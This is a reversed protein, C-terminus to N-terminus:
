ATAIKAFILPEILLRLCASYAARRQSVYFLVGRLHDLGLRFLSRAKRGHKKLAPPHRRAVSQGVLHAWTFALALVAVLKEIRAGARLHTAEFDFGRRKLAGFLVEISWRHRYYQLAGSLGRNSAVILLSEALRLASLYLDLGYVRRRKRLRSAQGVTLRGFLREARMIRGRHTVRANGKIRIYFAVELADLRSLWRHGLFERDAVLATIEAAPVVRLLREVLAMREDANSSGAKDLFCWMLPFAVGQYVVGAVLLNIPQQGFKWDTRDLSIIWDRQPPVLYLILRAFGDFDIPCLALFRQIRRYHSAAKAHPGMAHAIKALNVTAVRILALLFLVLFSIRHRSWGLHDQLADQLHTDHLM